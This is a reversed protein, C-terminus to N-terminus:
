GEGYLREEVDRLVRWGQTGLGRAYAVFNDVTVGGTEGGDLWGVVGHSLGGRSAVARQSLNGAARRRKLEARAEQGVVPRKRTSM